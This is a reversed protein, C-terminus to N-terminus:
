FIYCHGVVDVNEVCAVMRSPPAHNAHTTKAPSRYPTISTGLSSESPSVQEADM